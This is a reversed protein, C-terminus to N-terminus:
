PMVWGDPPVEVAVLTTLWPPRTAGPERQKEPLDLGLMVAAIRDSDAFRVWAHMWQGPQIGFMSCLRPSGVGPWIENCFFPGPEIVIRELPMRLDRVALEVAAVAAPCPDSSLMPQLPGPDPTCRVSPAPQTLPEAAATPSADTTVVPQNRGQWTLWLLAALVGISLWTVISLRRTAM